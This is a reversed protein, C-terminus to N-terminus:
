HDIKKKTTDLIARTIVPLVIGDLTEYAMKRLHLGDPQAYETKLHRDEDSIRLAKELDLVLIGEQNAYERIFDNFELLSTLRLPRKEEHEQTVPVVTALVPTIHNNRLLDVWEKIFKKSQEIDRPFYAACEKIVVGSVRVPLDALSKIEISKDFNYRARYGFVLQSNQKLREPLKEFEWAKGVSAGILVFYKAEIDSLTIPIRLNRYFLKGKLDSRRIEIFYRKEHSLGHFLCIGRSDFPMKKVETKNDYVVVELKDNLHPSEGNIVAVGDGLPIVEQSVIEKRM